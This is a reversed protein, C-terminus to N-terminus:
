NKWSDIIKTNIITEDIKTVLNNQISPNLIIKSLEDIEYSYINDNKKFKFIKDKNKKKLIIKSPNATWTDELIIKGQTGIIESSRGLNNSFSAGIKSIFGNDFKLDVYSDVDVETPGLTLKKNLLSVNNLNINGFLSAIKTSFSVPYCGLDLIAGGGLRKNFIRKNPNIKKKKVLGFWNKKTLLNNGFYTKMSILEGIENSQILEITKIIQPQFLYMFAEFFNTKNNLNKKVEFIEGLNMVAPKEVLVHKNNKLCKIIWEKHFLTPLALYIIDIQNQEILDQYHDFCFNNKIQYKEKFIKVKDNSRSAVGLLTANKTSDFGEAFVKAVSGLGIIGWNIKKM